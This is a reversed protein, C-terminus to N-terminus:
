KTELLKVIAPDLPKVRSPFFGLVEGKENIIYKCFNWSPAKGTKKELWEFLPHQDRGKVSVKEFMQFDVGYNRECFSAIEENSGPEQWLFNNAPFGLVEVAGAYQEHLQQLDKYQPTYGCKSATNVIVVKKGKYRSFDIPEGSLSAIRFDYFSKSTEQPANSASLREALFAIIGMALVTVIIKNRNFRM